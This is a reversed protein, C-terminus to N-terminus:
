IAKIMHRRTKSRRIADGWGRNKKARWQKDQEHWTHFLGDCRSQYVEIDADVIRAFMDNDGGGYESFHENCGGIRIYDNRTIGVPAFGAKKWWGNAGSNPGNNDGSIVAPKDKHLSYALPIWVKGDSIIKNCLQVINKPLIHDAGPCFIISESTAYVALNNAIAANYYCSNRAKQDVVSTVISPLIGEGKQASLEEVTHLFKRKASASWFGISLTLLDPYESEILSSYLIKACKEATDRVNTCIAVRELNQGM